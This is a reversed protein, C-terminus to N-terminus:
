EHLEVAIDNFYTYHSFLIFLWRFWTLQSSHARMGQVVLGPSRNGIRAVCHSTQTTNPPFLLAFIGLYKLVLPSTRLTLLQITPRLRTFAVCGRYTAIHNPHGSVGGADFTLIHTAKVRSACESIKASSASVPWDNGPGDQLREDDVVVCSALGLVRAAASVECSRLAGLGDYNGTSLCLLHVSAATDIFRTIAPTFFM